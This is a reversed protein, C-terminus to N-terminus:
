QIEDIPANPHGMGGIVARLRLFHESSKLNVSVIRGRTLICGSTCASVSDGPHIEDM